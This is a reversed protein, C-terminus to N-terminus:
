VLLIKAKSKKRKGLFITLAFIGAPAIGDACYTVCYVSLCNLKIGM